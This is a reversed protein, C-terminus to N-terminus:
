DVIRSARQERTDIDVAHGAGLRSAPKMGALPHDTDPAAFRHSLKRGMRIVQDIHGSKPLCAALSTGAPVNGVCTDVSLRAAQLQDGCGESLFNDAGKQVNKRTQNPKRPLIHM